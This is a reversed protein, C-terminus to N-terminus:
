LEYETKISAVWDDVFKQYKLWTEHETPLSGAEYQSNYENGLTKVIGRGLKIIM